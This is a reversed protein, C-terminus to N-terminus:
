TYAAWSYDDGEGEDRDDLGLEEDRMTQLDNVFDDMGGRTYIFDLAFSLLTDDNWGTEATIKDIRPDRM